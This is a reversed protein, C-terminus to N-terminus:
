RGPKSPPISEIIQLTLDPGVLDQRPIYAQVLWGSQRYAETVDHTLYQLDHQNLVRNAYPQVVTQLQENTLLKNGNFKFGKVMLRTAENVELVPPLAERKQTNRQMQSYRANQEIQRMLAGADYVPPPPPPPQNPQQAQASFVSFSLSFLVIKTIFRM